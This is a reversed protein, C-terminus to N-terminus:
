IYVIHNRSEGEYSGVVVSLGTKESRWKGIKIPAYKIDFSSVQKYNGFDGHEFGALNDVM